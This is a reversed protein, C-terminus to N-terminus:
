VVSKRDRKNVFFELNEKESGLIGKHVIMGASSNPSKQNKMDLPSKITTKM